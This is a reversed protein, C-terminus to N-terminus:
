LYWIISEFYVFCYKIFYISMYNPSIKVSVSCVYTLLSLNSVKLKCVQGFLHTYLVNYRFRYLIFLVSQFNVTYQIIFFIEPASLHSQLESCKSSKSLLKKGLAWILCNLVVQLELQLPNLMKKQGGPTSASVQVYGSVGM